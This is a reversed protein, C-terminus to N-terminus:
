EFEGEKPPEPFPMWFSPQVMMPYGEPGNWDGDEDISGTTVYRVERFTRNVAEELSEGDRQIIVDHGAVAVLVTEYKEPLRDKVSIWGINKDVKDQKVKGTIFDEETLYSNCNLCKYPFSKSFGALSVVYNPNNCRPCIRNVMKM